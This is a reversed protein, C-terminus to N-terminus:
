KEAEKLKQLMEGLEDLNMNALAETREDDTQKRLLLPVLIRMYNCARYREEKSPAEKEVIGRLDDLIVQMGLSVSESLATPADKSM